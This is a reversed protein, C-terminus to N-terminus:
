PSRHEGLGEKVGRTCHGTGKKADHDRRRRGSRLGLVGDDGTLHDAVGPLRDLEGVDIDTLQREGNGGVRLAGVRDAYGRGTGKPLGDVQPHTRDAVLRAHHRHVLLRLADDDGSAVLTMLRKDEEDEPPPLEETSM